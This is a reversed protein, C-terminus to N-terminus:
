HQHLKMWFAMKKDKLEGVRTTFDLQLYNEGKYHLWYPLKGGNPNKKCAFNAWHKVMQLIPVEEEGNSHGKSFPCRFIFYIEDRHDASDTHPKMIISTPIHQEFENMYIHFGADLYEEVVLPLQEKTINLISTSWLLKTITKRMMCWNLPLKSIFPLVWSFELNNVGLLYPVPAVQGQTLLVVPDDPFVVGNVMPRMFWVIEQPDEQSNLHFFRMNKSVLIVEAGSQARLCDVLITSNDNCGTMRAFKKAFKLQDPTIFVRFVTTSSQSIASSLAPRHVPTKVLRSICMARLSQYLLTTCGPDGDFAATNRQVWRLAAVQDLLAWNWRAQSRLFGLIGLRHQLLVLVVEECAALKSGDYTFASGMLFSGGPFWVMVGSLFASAQARCYSPLTSHLHNFVTSVPLLLDGCGCVSAYMNLYLCGELAAVKITKMNFDMSTIPGWSEQLCVPAYTTTDRNGEWPEPVRPSAFRLASVSTSFPIGLFVNITIKGMHIKGQLTGYETAMLSEKTHEAGM